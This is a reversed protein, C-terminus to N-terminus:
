IFYVEVNLEEIISSVNWPNLLLMPSKAVMNPLSYFMEM